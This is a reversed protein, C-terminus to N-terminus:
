IIILANEKNLNKFINNLFFLFTNGALKQCVHRSKGDSDYPAIIEPWIFTVPEKLIQLQSYHCTNERGNKLTEYQGILTAHFFFFFFFFFHSIVLWNSLQRMYQLAVAAVAAAVPDLAVWNAAERDRGASGGAPRRIIRM